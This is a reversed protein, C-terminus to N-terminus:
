TSTVCIGDATNDIQFLLMLVCSARPIFGHPQPLGMRGDFLATDACYMGHVGQAETIIFLFSCKDTRILFVIRENWGFRQFCGASPLSFNLIIRGQQLLIHLSWHFTGSSQAFFELVQFLAKTWLLCLLAHEVASPSPHGDEVREPIRLSSLKNQEISTSVLTNYDYDKVM